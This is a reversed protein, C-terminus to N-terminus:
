DEDEQQFMNKQMKDNGFMRNKFKEEYKKNGINENMEDSNSDEDMDFDCLVKKDIM